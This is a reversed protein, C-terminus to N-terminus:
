FFASVERLYRIWLNAIMDSSFLIWPQALFAFMAGLFFAMCRRFMDTGDGFNSIIASLCFFTSGMLSAMFMNNIRYYSVGLVLTAVLLTGLLLFVISKL